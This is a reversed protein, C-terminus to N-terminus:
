LWFHYRTMFIMRRWRGHSFQSDPDPKSQPTLFTVPSTLRSPYRCDCGNSMGWNFHIMSVCNGVIPRYKLCRLISLLYFIISDWLNTSTNCSVKHSVHFRETPLFRLTRHNEQLFEPQLNHGYNVLTGSNLQWKGPRSIIALSSM